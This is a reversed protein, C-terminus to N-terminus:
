GQYDGVRTGVPKGTDGTAIRCPHRQEWGRHLCPVERQLQVTIITLCSAAKGKCFTGKQIEVEKNFDYKPFLVGGARCGV